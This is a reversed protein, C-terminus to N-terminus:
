LETEMWETVYVARMFVKAGPISNAIKEAQISTPFEFINGNPHKVGFQYGESLVVAGNILIAM